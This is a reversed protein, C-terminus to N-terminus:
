PRAQAVHDPTLHRPETYGFSCVRMRERSRVLSRASRLAAVDLAIAVVLEEIQRKSKGLKASLPTWTEPTVRVAAEDESYGLREICDSSLSACAADLDLRRRDIEVLHEIVDAEGGRAALVLDPMRALLEATGVLILATM